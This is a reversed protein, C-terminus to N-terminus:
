CKAPVACSPTKSLIRENEPWLPDRKWLLKQGDPSMAIEFRRPHANEVLGRFLKDDAKAVDSYTDIDDLIQWLEERDRRARRLSMVLGREEGVKVRCAAMDEPGRGFHDQASGTTTFVEGCHFCRWELPPTRYNAPDAWYKLSKIRKILKRILTNKNM